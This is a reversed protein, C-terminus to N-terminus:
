AYKARVLKYEEINRNSEGEYCLKIGGESEKRKRIIKIGKYYDDEGM